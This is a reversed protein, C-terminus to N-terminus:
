ANVVGKLQATILIFEKLLDNDKKSTDCLTNDGDYVIGYRNNIMLGTTAAKLVKERDCGLMKSIDDATMDDVWNIGDYVSYLRM